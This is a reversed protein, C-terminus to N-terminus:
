PEGYVLVGGLLQKYKIEPHLELFRKCAIKTYEFCELKSVEVIWEPDNFGIEFIVNQNDDDPYLWYCGDM